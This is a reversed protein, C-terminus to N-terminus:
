KQKSIKKKKSKRPRVFYFWISILILSGGTIGCGIYFFKKPLFDYKLKKPDTGAEIPFANLAMFVPRPYIKKEGDIINWLLTYSEGMQLTFKERKGSPNASLVLDYDLYNKEIHTIRPASRRPSPKEYIAVLDLSPLNEVQKILFNRVQFESEGLPNPRALFQLRMHYAGDPVSFIDELNYFPYDQSDPLAFNQTALFKKHRDFFLVKFSLKNVKEAEIEFNLLYHQDDRVSLADTIITQWDCSVSAPIKSSLVQTFLNNSTQSITNEIVSGVEIYKTCEKHREQELNSLFIFSDNKWPQFDELQLLSPAQDKFNIIIEYDGPVLLQDPLSVWILSDEQEKQTWTKQPKRKELNASYITKGTSDKIETHLLKDDKELLKKELRLAVQFRGEKLISFNSRLFGNNLRIQKGNAFRIDHTQIQEHGLKEFDIDSELLVLQSIEPLVRELNAKYAKLKRDPIIAIVNSANFGDINQIQVPLVENKELPYEGIKKWIFKNEFKTKTAITKTEKDGVKIQIRGGKLNHFDRTFVHYTDDERAHYQLDLTNPRMAQSLDLMDFQHLYWFSRVEPNELSLIEIQFSETEPPSVYLGKFKLFDFTEVERPASVYALGVEEGASNFFKVKAHVLHANRGSLTMEFFYGTRPDAPFRKTRAIRFYKANGQEVRGFVSPMDDYLNSFGEQITLKEPIDSQFLPEDKELFNAFNYPKGYDRLDEYPLVDIRDPVTTYAIGKGLDFEHKKNTIGLSQLQWDWDPTDTRLKAWRYNPQGFLTADFSGLLYEDEVQSLLVDLKNKSELIDGRQLDNVTFGRSSQSGFFLATEEEDFYPFHFIPDLASYGSFTLLNRSFVHAWPLHNKVEFIDIFGIKGGELIKLASSKHLNKVAQESMDEFGQIDSHFVFRDVGLARIMRGINESHNHGLADFFYHALTHWFVTSGEQPHYTRQALSWIDITSTAKPPVGERRFANWSTVAYGFPKTVMMEYRPLMYTRNLENKKTKDMFQRAEVYTQPVPTPRYFHGFYLKHVPEFYKILCFIIGLCFAVIFLTFYNFNFFTRTQQSLFKKREQWLRTLEELLAAIGYGLLVAMGFSLLGAFKNGDRFIFGISGALPGEFVFWRFVEANWKTGFSMSYTFLSWLLFFMVFKNNLKLIVGMLMIGMLIGGGLWFSVPLASFDFLGWWYSILYLILHPLNNRSVMDTSDISNINPPNVSGVMSAGIYPGLYYALLLMALGGAIFFRGVIILSEKWRQQMMYRVFRFLAWAFILFFSFFLYHVAGVSAAWFFAMGIMSRLIVRSHRVKRLTPTGIGFLRQSLKKLFIGRSGVKALPASKSEPKYSKANKSIHVFDETLRITFLFIIPLLAHGVLLYIHQVRITVWPNFAYFLGAVLAAFVLFGQPCKLRKLETDETFIKILLLYMGYGCGWLLVFIIMKEWSSGSMDTIHAIISLPFLFYIRTLNFFNPTSWEFNWVPFIRFMYEQQFGFDMDSYAIHGALHSGKFFYFTALAFFFVPFLLYFREKHHTMGIWLSVFIGGFNKLAQVYDRFTNELLERIFSKQKKAKTM